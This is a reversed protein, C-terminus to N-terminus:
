MWFPRIFTWATLGIGALLVISLWVDCLIMAWTRARDDDPEPLPVTYNEYPSKRESM